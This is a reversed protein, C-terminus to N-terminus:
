LARKHFRGNRAIGAIRGVDELITVDAYPDGDVILFDAFADPILEGIQGELKCLRASVITASRLIEPASLVKALLAFERSQETRLSGLLDTGFAMTVNADQLIGLSEMAAKRVVELKAVSVASLGLARANDAFAHYTVVTPVAIAGAAAAARATAPTILNCHELSHVGLEVARRIAEDTLLHAAVYTGANQAEEVVASIEDRSFGLAHIPDNPSAVGGNAMIKIFNAGGKIEDRAARRIADVGDCLRGIAGLRGTYPDRDDSRGRFDSHGGTQSLAKGCIVLRPGDIVGVEVARALGYDAGGLDRVTTYGRALTAAMERASHLAVLSSPLAANAALDIESITVHVHADILGPMLCRGGLDIREASASDIQRDSVERIRDGDVLVEMGDVLADRRPDLLRGGTLVYV